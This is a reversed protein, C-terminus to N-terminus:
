KLIGACAKLLSVKSVASKNGIIKCKLGAAVNSIFLNIDPHCGAKLLCASLAFFCDGAGVTDVISDAFAPSRYANYGFFLSSGNPGFTVGLSQDALLKQRVAKALIDPSSYRDSRALRAEKTDLCLYDFRKHKHYLNFGYNSSNTQVNLAIFTMKLQEIAKLVDGEFLGHGFDAIIVMDYKSTDNIFGLINEDWWAQEDIHTVEFIRQNGSIYRIKKPTEKGKAVATPLDCKSVFDELHNRIALAGGLYEEQYQYRASISPSKSSIGEPNVFRYIDLIPEGLVLVKLKAVKELAQEIAGMGGHSIVKEITAKQDESWGQFFRNVITSSSFTEDETFVVRGGYEEVAKQENVIEGTVDKSADRYDPGKVYFDPKFRRIAGIAALEDSIYVEDVIGIARLMEARREHSFYPRGPGKNVFRDSTVSVILKDGYKKASQFHRLHGAHLIDFCGHCLVVREKGETLLM